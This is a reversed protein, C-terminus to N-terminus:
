GGDRCQSGARTNIPKPSRRTPTRWSRQLARKGAHWNRRSGLRRNQPRTPFGARGAAQLPDPYVTATDFGPHYPENEAILRVSSPASPSCARGFDQLDAVTNKSSGQFPQGVTPTVLGVAQGATGTVARRQNGVDNKEYPGSELM